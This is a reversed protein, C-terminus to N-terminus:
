SGAAAQGHWTAGFQSGNPYPTEGGSGDSQKKLPDNSPLAIHIQISDVGKAIQGMRQANHVHFGQTFALPCLERGIFSGALVYVRLANQLEIM